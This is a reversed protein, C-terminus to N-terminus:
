PRQNETRQDKLLMLHPISFSHFQLSNSWLRLGTVLNTVLNAVLNAVICVCFDERGYLLGSDNAVIALGFGHQCAGLSVFISIMYTCPLVNAPPRAPSVLRTPVRICSLAFVGFYEFPCYCVTVSPFVFHALFDLCLLIVCTVHVHLHVSDMRRLSM